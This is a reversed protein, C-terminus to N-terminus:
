LKKLYYKARLAERRNHESVAPNIVSKITNSLIKKTSDGYFKELEENYKVSLILLQDEMTNVISGAPMALLELARKYLRRAKEGDEIEEPDLLKDSVAADEGNKNFFDIEEKPSIQQNNIKKELYLLEELIHKVFSPYAFGLWEGKQLRELITLKYKKVQELLRKAESIIDSSRSKLKSLDDPKLFVDGLPIGKAVFYKDLYAKVTNYLDLGEGKLPENQIMLHLFMCHELIQYMWFYINDLIDDEGNTGGKQNLQLNKYLNKYRIYRYNQNM